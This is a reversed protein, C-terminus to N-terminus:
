SVKKDPVQKLTEIADSLQDESLDEPNEVSYKKKLFLKGRGTRICEETLQKRLLAMNDQINQGNKRKTGTSRGSNSKDKKDEHGEDADDDKTDDLLLLGNLAYKRAYSSASGTIQADDMGKKESAERAFATTSIVENSECDMLSAIAKVYIRDGIVSMDVTVILAVKYESEFPKFAELIGEANRYPYNGFKNYLNKPVKIKQQICSLKETLGM